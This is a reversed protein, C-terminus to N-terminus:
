LPLWHTYFTAMYGAAWALEFGQLKDSGDFYSQKNGDLKTVLTPDAFAEIAFRISRHLSGGFAAFLAHGDRELLM